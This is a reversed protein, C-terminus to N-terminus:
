WTRWVLRGRGPVSAWSRLRAPPDDGLLQVAGLRQPLQPHDFAQLVVPEGDDGLDVVAHDVPDGPDVEGRDQEVDHGGGLDFVGRNADAARV